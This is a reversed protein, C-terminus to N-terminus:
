KILIKKVLVQTGFEFEILYLGAQLNKTSLTNQDEKEIKINSRILQGTAAFLKAKGSKQSKIFVVDSAPNPYINVEVDREPELGTITIPLINQLLRVGGANTGVAFDPKGDGNYDAASVYLLTGLNINGAQGSVDLLMEAKKNWQNWDGDYRIKVNGSQDATILDVKGDLDIDKVAVQVNRGEYNIGIGALAETQLEFVFQQNGGTNSYYNINGQPKGVILDLDGDQDTDFFFYSDSLQSGTPLTITKVDSLSLQAGGSTSKNPIFRYEIKLSQTNVASFGLDNIGDGNFDIWQPKINFLGLQDSLKLFNSDTIEFKPSSKSGINTLLVFSGKFGGTGAVGGTGVIMDLDGDGDIDFFSPAANEGVDLMQDQLFNKQVLELVPRADTGANHYYWNSSKFDMQNGDNSSVSPSAVLDKIGDFDLDEYFVAPFINFVIPSTKPYEHTFSTFNAVIGPASNYLVSIHNNSVHGVLLDKFGDGNIDQLLISNGAHLVKAGDLKTVGCDGGFEFGESSGKHFNGWCDGNRAFVPLKSTGLSDPVGFREMSLNQHLEIYNGSFDFTLIDLDGDDDIDVIGPIDPGSIQLNLPGSFGKTYLAERILSFVPMGADRSQRYVTLGLSTSVFLDKYGDLDYDALIMWNDFKPFVTEYYPAHKFVMESSGAQKPVALFTTVKSNTRDFVVLDEVADENLKMKSFQMANLGGAWPNWVARGNSELVTITDMKFWPTQAQISSGTLIIYMILLLGHCNKHNIASIDM